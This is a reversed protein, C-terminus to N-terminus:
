VQEAIRGRNLDCLLYRVIFEITMLVRVIEPCKSKMENQTTLSFCFDAHEAILNIARADEEPLRLRAMRRSM